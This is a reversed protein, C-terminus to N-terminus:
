FYYNDYKSRKHKRRFKMEGLIVKDEINAAREDMEALYKVFTNITPYAQGNSAINRFKQLANRNNSSNNLYRFQKIITEENIIKLKWSLLLIELSNLYSITYGRLESVPTGEIIYKTEKCPKGKHICDKCKESNKSCLECVKKFTNEDLEIPEYNYLKRCQSDDFGEVIREAKRTEKQLMRNWDDMVKITNERREAEHHEKEAKISFLFTVFAAVVSLCGIIACIAVIWEYTSEM